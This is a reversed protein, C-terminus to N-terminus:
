YKHLVKAMLEAM